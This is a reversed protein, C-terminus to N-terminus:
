RELSGNEELDQYYSELESWAHERSVSKGNKELAVKTNM